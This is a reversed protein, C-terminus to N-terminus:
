DALIVSCEDMLSGLAALTDDRLADVRETDNASLATNFSGLSRSTAGAASHLDAFSGDRKAASALAPAVEDDIATQLKTINSQLVWNGTGEQYDVESLATCAQEALGTAEDQPDPGCGALTIAAVLM